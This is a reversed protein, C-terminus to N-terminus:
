EWNSNISKIGEGNGFGKGLGAIVSLTIIMAIGGFAPTASEAKVDLKDNRARGCLPLAHCDGESLLLFFVAEWRKYPNSAATM